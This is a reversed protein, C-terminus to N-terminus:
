WKQYDTGERQAQTAAADNARMGEAKRDAVVAAVMGAFLPASVSTGDVLIVKGQNVVQVASGALALDPDALM